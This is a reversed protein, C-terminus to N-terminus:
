CEMNDPTIDSQFWRLTPSANRVFKVLTNQSIIMKQDILM